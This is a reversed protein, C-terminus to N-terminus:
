KYYWFYEIITIVLNFYNYIYLNFYFYFFSIVQHCSFSFIFIPFVKITSSDFTAVQIDTSSSSSSSSSSSPQLKFSYFLVLLTLFIVFIISLISTFKLSDLKKLFSLPVIIFFFLMAMWFRRDELISTSTSTSSTIGQFVYPMLDGIVILYSTAVGFCKIAVALDIFISFLSHISSGVKSFSTPLNYKLACCSLLHLTFSMVLASLILLITGFLWGAHSYAYPLGLMGSGLITNSLNIVSSFLSSNGSINGSINSSSNSSSSSSSILTQQSINRDLINNNEIEIIELNDEKFNFQIPNRTNGEVKRYKYKGKM